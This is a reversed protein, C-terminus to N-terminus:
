SYCSVLATCCCVFLFCGTGVWGGVARFRKGLDRTDQGLTRSPNQSHIAHFWHQAVVFLCFVALAWWGM